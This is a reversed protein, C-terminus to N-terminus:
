KRKIVWVAFGIVLALLVVAIWPSGYGGTFGHSWAGDMMNSNQAQAASCAWLPATGIAIMPFTKM